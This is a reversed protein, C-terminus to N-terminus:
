EDSRNISYFVGDGTMATQSWFSADIDDYDERIDLWEREIRSRCCWGALTRPAGQCDLMVNAISRRM